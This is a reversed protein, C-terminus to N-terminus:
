AARRGIQIGFTREIHAYLALVQSQAMPQSLQHTYANIYAMAEQYGTLLKQELVEDWYMDKVDEWADHLLQVASYEDEANNFDICFQILEQESVRVTHAPDDESLEPTIYHYAADSGIRDTDWLEITQKETTNIVKPM